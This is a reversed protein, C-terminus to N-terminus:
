ASKPVLGEVVLQINGGDAAATLTSHDEIVGRSGLVDDREAIDIFGAAPRVKGSEALCGFVFVESDHEVFFALVDVCAGDANGVEHVRRDTKSTHLAALM